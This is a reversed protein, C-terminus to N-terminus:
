WYIQRSKHKFDFNNEFNLWKQYSNIDFSLLHGHYVELFDSESNQDWICSVKDLKKIEKNSSGNEYGCQKKSRLFHFCIKQAAILARYVLLTLLCFPMQQSFFSSDITFPVSWIKKPIFSKQKDLYPSSYKLLQKIWPKTFGQLIEAWESLCESLM